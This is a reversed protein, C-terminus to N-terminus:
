CCHRRNEPRSAQRHWGWRVWRWDREPKEQKASSSTEQKEETNKESNELSKRLGSAINRNIEILADFKEAAPEAMINVTRKFVFVSLSAINNKIDQPLPHGDNVTESAFVTWLKRNYGLVDELDELPVREGNRYRTQINELQQASKLLIQSELSRQDVTAAKANNGYVGAAHTYPNHSM